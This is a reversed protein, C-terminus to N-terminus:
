KNNEVKEILEALMELAQEKSEAKKIAIQLAYLTVLTDKGGM